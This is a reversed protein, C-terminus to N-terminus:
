RSSQSRKTLESVRLRVLARSAASEAQALTMPDINKRKTESKAREYAQRARESDIDDAMEATEAFVSVKNNLIEAFGGSIALRKQGYDSGCVGASFEDFANVLYTNDAESFAKRGMAYLVDNEKWIHNARIELYELGNKKFVDKAEM